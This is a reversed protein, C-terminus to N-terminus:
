QVLFSGNAVEILKDIAEERSNVNLGTKLRDLLAEINAISTVHQGVKREVSGLTKVHTTDMLGNQTESALPIQDFSIFMESYTITTNTNVWGNLYRYIYFSNAYAVLAYDGNSVHDLPLESAYQYVGKFKYVAGFLQTINMTILSFNDNLKSSIENWKGTQPITNM